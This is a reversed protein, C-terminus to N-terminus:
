PATVGEKKFWLQLKKILRDHRIRIWERSVGRRVGVQAFNLGDRYVSDLIDVEEETMKGKFSDILRILFERQDSEEAVEDPEPSPDTFGGSGETKAKPAGEQKRTKEETFPLFRMATPGDEDGTREEKPLNVLNKSLWLNAMAGRLFPTLFRAFRNKYAPDFRDIAKMLAENMASVIEDNRLKGKAYKLGYTAVYLLHNRILFERAEADGAKAKAFLAREEEHTIKKFHIDDGNRYYLTDRNM